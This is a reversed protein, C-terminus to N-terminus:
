EYVTITRQHPRVEKVSDWGDDFLIGEYSSYYAKIKLYIDCNKFYKVCYWEDGQGEGGYQFVEEFELINDPELTSDAYAFEALEYTEQLKKILEEATIKKSQSM